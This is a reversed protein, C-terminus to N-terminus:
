KAGELAALGRNFKVVLNDLEGQVQPINKNRIFTHITPDAEPGAGRQWVKVVFDADSDLYVDWFYEDPLEPLNLLTSM